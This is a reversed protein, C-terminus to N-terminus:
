ALTRQLHDSLRLSLAVLTLTPNVAGGTPFVSAGAISLNGLGHVRCNADVVGSRPDPHMRTTGMHHWGGSLTKPWGPDGSRLWDLIQVRGLGSRGFERGLVDYFRQFSRKELDTMRWDLVARPMGLADRQASLTVRSSPNPSQEQRTIVHFFRGTAAAAPPPVDTERSGRGRGRGRARAIRHREFRAAPAAGGRHTGIEGRYLDQMAAEYQLGGGELLLVTRPSGIWERAITIGAAGAGVICLDGELLAGNPLTRADIHM